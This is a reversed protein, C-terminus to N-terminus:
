PVPQAPPAPRTEIVLEYPAWAAPLISPRGRRVGRAAERHVAREAAARGGGFQSEPEVGTLWRFLADSWGLQRARLCVLLGGPKLVRRCERWCAAPDPVFELVSLLTVADFAADRFPLECGSGRVLHAVVGDEALERRVAAANPHVDLGVSVASRAALEYQFVGSGYGIELVRGMRRPLQAGVWAMRRRFILGIGPADYSGIWDVPGTSQLRRTDPLRVSRRASGSWRRWGERLARWGNALWMTDM